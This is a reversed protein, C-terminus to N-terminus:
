TAGMNQSNYITSCHVISYMHRKLKPKRPYIGLLPIAPVYPPKIETKKHVRWVTKRLPQIM